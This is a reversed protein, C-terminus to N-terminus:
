SAELAFWQYVRGNGMLVVWYVKSLVELVANRGFPPKFAFLKSM